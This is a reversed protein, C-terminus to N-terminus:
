SQIEKPPLNLLWTSLLIITPLRLWWNGLAETIAMRTEIHVSASWTFLCYATTLAATGTGPTWKNKILLLYLIPLSLIQFSIYFVNHDNFRLIPTGWYIFIPIEYLWGGTSAAHIAINAATVTDGLRHLTYLFAAVTFAGWEIPASYTWNMNMVDYIPTSSLYGILYTYSVCFIFAIPAIACFQLFGDLQPYTYKRAVLLLLTFFPLRDRLIYYGWMM